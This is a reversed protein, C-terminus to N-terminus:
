EPPITDWYEFGQTRVYLVAIAIVSIVFAISLIWIQNKRRKQHRIRIREREQRIQEKPLKPFEIEETGGSKLITDESYNGKFKRGKSTLTARNSKLKRIADFIFGGGGGSM